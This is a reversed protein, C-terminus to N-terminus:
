MSELCRCNNGIDERIDRIRAAAAIAACSAVALPGNLNQVSLLHPWHGTCTVSAPVPYGLQTM